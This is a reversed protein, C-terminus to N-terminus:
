KNEENKKENNDDKDKNLLAMIRELQEQKARNEYGGYGDDSEAENDDEWEEAPKKERPARAFLNMGNTTEYGASVCIVVVEAVYLALAVFAMDFPSCRLVVTTGLLKAYLTPMLMPIFFIPLTLAHFVCLVVRNPVFALFLARGSSGREGTYFMKIATVTACIRSVAGVAFLTWAAIILGFVVRSFHLTAADKNSSSGFIYGRVTDWSNGMLEGLSVAGSFKGSANYMYVSVLMLCLLMLTVGVPMIYRFYIFGKQASKKM